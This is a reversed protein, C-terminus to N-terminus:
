FKQLNKSTTLIFEVIQEASIGYKSFIEKRTGHEVPVSPFAFTKYHKGKSEKSLQELICQSASAFEYSDEIFIFLDTKRIVEEVTDQDFPKVWRLACVISSIGLKSLKEQIEVGISRTIGITFIGISYHKLFPDPFILEPTKDKVNVQKTLESLNEEAKPFRVAIPGQEDEEMFYLFSKLEAGNAPAYIRINPIAYLFGLDYLGQHTEGDPGVCGARDIVFKVPLNMLAVDQILQDIARNLFTSYICMYPILGGSALAGSFSVSHQEAIGVDFVRQPFKQFLERLGSGEIMAPTIAVAKKNREFIEILTKGVIESFSISTSIKKASSKGNNKDFHSVSHFQTPDQEAPQYGKGKQTLVHVLIPGKMKKVRTFVQILQSLNHGDIPGVYRFGFDEFLSGPLLFDKIAKEFKLSFLKLAPSILPLWYVFQYWRKRWKNYFQSTVIKNLYSNIAGVNKSISMDNDNLILICDTQLHGGYNLAEFAMGCGISADGIVAICQYDEGKLDRAIAEGLLQSISTGAHGTNYLDYISEERKPFGSIGKFKRITPLLEKRGTLIKHPYIQHGVDWILRDTPTNFVYHLALTLEVVGLNSAFHGGVESVTDILYERIEKCLLELKAIDFNRFDKPTQIKNLLPYKEM